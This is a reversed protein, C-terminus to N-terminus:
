ETEQSSLLEKTFEDVQEQTWGGQVAMHYAAPDIDALTRGKPTVGAGGGGGLNTPKAARKKRAQEQVYKGYAADYATTLVEALQDSKLQGLWSKNLTGVQKDFLPAVGAYLPDDGKKDKKFSDISVGAYNGAFQEVMPAYEQLMGGIVKKLAAQPDAFLEETTISAATTPVTPVPAVQRANLSTLQEALSSVQGALSESQEAQQMLRALDTKSITAIETEEPTEEPTEPDPAVVDLVDDLPDQEPM